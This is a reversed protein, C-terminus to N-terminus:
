FGVGIAIAVAVCSHVADGAGGGSPPVPTSEGEPPLPVIPPGVVNPGDPNIPTIFGGAPM